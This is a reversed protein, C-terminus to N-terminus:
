VLESLSNLIFKTAVVCLLLLIGNFFVLGKLDSIETMREKMEKAYNTQLEKNDNKM